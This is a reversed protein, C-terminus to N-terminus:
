QVLKKPVGDVDLWAECLKPVGDVDLWITCFKPVGDVDLWIGSEGGGGSGTSFSVVNSISGRGNNTDTWVLAYYTKNDDLEVVQSTAGAPATIQIPNSSLTENIDILLKYATITAGNLDAPATWKLTAFTGSVNDLSLTPGTPVDDRTTLPVWPGYPGWGGGPAPSYAAQAVWHGVGELLGSLRLPAWQAGTQTLYVGADGPETSVKVRVRTPATGGNDGLTGTTITASTSAVEIAVYGSPASPPEGFTTFARDASWDSWGVANRIRGRATYNRARVLSGFTTVSTSSSQVVLGDLRIQVERELVSGGVYTPDLLTVKASNLGIESITPPGPTDPKTHLTTIKKPTSWTGQGISNRASIRFWYDTGRTKNAYSVPTSTLVTEEDIVSFNEFKSLQAKFDLLSAGGNDTPNSFNQKFSTSTLDSVSGVLPATPVKPIRTMAWSGSGSPDGISATGTNLSASVALTKRGDSGHPINRTGNALNRTSGVPASAAFEFSTNADFVKSGNVHVIARSSGWGTYYGYSLVKRLRLLWSINTSNGSVGTETIILEFKFYKSATNWSFTKSAM